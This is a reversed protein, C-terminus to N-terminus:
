CERLTPIPPLLAAEAKKPEGILLTVGFRELPLSHVKTAGGKMQKFGRVKYVWAHEIVDDDFDDHKRVRYAHVDSEKPWYHNVIERSKALSWRSKSFLIFAIRPDTARIGSDEIYEGQGVIEQIKQEMISKAADAEGNESQGAGNSAPPPCYEAPDVDFPKPCRPDTPQLRGIFVLRYVNVTGDRNTEYQIHEHPQM